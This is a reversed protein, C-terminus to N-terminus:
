GGKEPAKVFWRGRSPYGQAQRVIGSGARDIGLGRGEEMRGFERLVAQSYAVLLRVKDVLEAALSLFAKAM